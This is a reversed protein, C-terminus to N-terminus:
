HGPKPNTGQFKALLADVEAWLARCAKQEDEPLKALASEDRLGALYLDIKWRRLAQAVALRTQAPGNMLLKSRAALESKLWVIAKTRWRDKTADDLPPQDKGQGYGTM